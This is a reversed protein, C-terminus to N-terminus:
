SCILKGLRQKKSIHHKEPVRSFYSQQTYFEQNVAKEKLVKVTDGGVRGVGMTFRISSGKHTLIAKTKSSRNKRM